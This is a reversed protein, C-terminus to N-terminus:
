AMNNICTIYCFMTAFIPHILKRYYRQINLSKSSEDISSPLISFWSLPDKAEKPDPFVVSLSFTCEYLTIM